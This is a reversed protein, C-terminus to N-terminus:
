PDRRERASPPVIIFTNRHGLRQGSFVADRWGHGWKAKKESGSLYHQMLNLTLDWDHLKRELKPQKEKDGPRPGAQEKPM